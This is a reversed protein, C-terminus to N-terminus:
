RATAAGERTHAPARLPAGPAGRVERRDVRGDRPEVSARLLAGAAGDDARGRDLSRGDVTPGPRAVDAIGDAGALERRRGHAGRAEVAAGVLTGAARGHR